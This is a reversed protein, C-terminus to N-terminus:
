HNCGYRLRLKDAPRGGGEPMEKRGLISEIELKFQESGLCYGYNAHENIKEILDPELDQHFMQRYAEIRQAKNSGLAMYVPHPKLFEQHEGLANVSYSSWIYEAPHTVIGSRVPALEIYRQCALLYNEADILCPRIRERWLQGKRYYKQNFYHTYRRGLLVMMEAINDNGNSTVLLHVHNGMLVYCHVACNHKETAQILCDLYFRRDTENLFISCRNNGRQVIHQPMGILNFRPKRAM